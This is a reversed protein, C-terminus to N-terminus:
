LVSFDAFIIYILLVLGLLIGGGLKAHKWPTMDVAGVDQQIFEQKLPALKGIVLMILILGAFVAGLFHFEHMSEVMTTFPWVFYGVAITIFGAVLAITAAIPPVRKSLMGVLV